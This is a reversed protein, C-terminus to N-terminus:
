QDLSRTEQTKNSRWNECFLDLEYTSWSLWDMGAYRFSVANWKLQRKGWDVLRDADGEILWDHMKWVKRWSWVCAGTWLSLSLKSDLEFGGLRLLLPLSTLTAQMFCEVVLGRQTSKWSDFECAPADEEGDGPQQRVIERLSFKWSGTPQDTPPSSTEDECLERKATLIAVGLWWVLSLSARWWSSVKWPHDVWMANPTAYCCNSYM